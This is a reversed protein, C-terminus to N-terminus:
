HAKLWEKAEESTWPRGSSQINDALAGIAHDYDERQKQSVGILYKKNQMIYRAVKNAPADRNVLKIDVAEKGAKQVAEAGAEEAGAPRKKCFRKLEACETNNEAIASTESRDDDSSEIYAVADPPCCEPCRCKTSIM